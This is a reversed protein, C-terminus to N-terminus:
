LTSSEDEVEMVKINADKTQERMNATGRGGPFAVLLDFGADVMEKNRIPGARKGYEDWHAKHVICPVKRERAWDVACADAGRADGVILKMDPNTKHIEDLTLFVLEMDTFDRGGTVCVTIM